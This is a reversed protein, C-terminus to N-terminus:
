NVPESKATRSEFYELMNVSLRELHSEMAKRTKAIDRERLGEVIRGHQRLVTARSRRQIASLYRARWLRALYASYTDALSPNHSARAIAIHFSMDTEFLELRDTGPANHMEAFRDQIASIDAIEEETAHKCALRGSLLELASLVAIDDSVEKLSPDAVVPSRATRLLVLGDNALIRIAERMPTRSVGYKAAADREKVPAGPALVGRLIDRRLKNAIDEALIEGAM